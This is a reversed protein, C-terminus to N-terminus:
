CSSAGYRSGLLWRDQGLLERYVDVAEDYRHLRELVDAVAAAARTYVWPAAYRRFFYSADTAPVPPTTAYATRAVSRWEDLIARCLALASTRSEPTALAASFRRVRKANGSAGGDVDDLETDSGGVLAASVLAAPAAAPLTPSRRRQAPGGRLGFGGLTELLATVDAERRLAAEYAELAPRDPFVAGHASLAYRPYAM